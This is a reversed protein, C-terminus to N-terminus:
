LPSSSLSLVLQSLSLASLFWVSEHSVSVEWVRVFGDAGGSLLLTLDASFRVCKVCPDQPSLDAQVAGVDEVVIQPSDKKMQAM